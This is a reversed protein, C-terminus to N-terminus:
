SRKTETSFGQIFDAEHSECLILFVDALIPFLYNRCMSIGVTQQFVRGGFMSYTSSLKKISHYFKKKRCFLIQGKKACYIQIYTPWEKEHLVTQGVGTNEWWWLTLFIYLTSFDFTQIINCFSLSRSRIYELMDKTNKLIWMQNVGGRSYSTDCYSQLSTKVASLICTLLKSLPKTSCKSSSAIYLHKHLPKYLKPIWYLSPIDPEKDKTSIGFSCLVSWHNDLIEENTLTTPIYTPNSLANDIGFNTLLCDVYHSKCM